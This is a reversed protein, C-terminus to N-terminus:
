IGLPRFLRPELLDRVIQGTTQTVIASLMFSTSSAYVFETGPKHVVPLSFFENIWSSKIGRWEGGAIGHGHGSTQTLLDEVTMEVLNQLVTALLRDPFLSM